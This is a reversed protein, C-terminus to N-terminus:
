LLYFLIVGIFSGGVTKSLILLFVRKESLNARKYIVYM